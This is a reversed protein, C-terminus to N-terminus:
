SRPVDFMIRRRKFDIAVRDFKRLTAMGLLLTPKDELGLHHFAPSDAFAIGIHDFKARGIRFDQVLGDDALIKQGTVSILSTPNNHKGRARAGRLKRQLARNGINAQAGTDIVVNVSLNGIKADTFILQGSRRRATVVIEFGSRGSGEEVNEVSIENSQFDFLIRQDQLGDLGLIGEAGIDYPDLLPGIVEGYNQRGLTLEPIYVTDVIKSGAVSVVTAKEAFELNLQGALIHSIATRESGTDIVFSFPGKGDIGVPVTMRRARDQEVAIIEAQNLPTKAPLIDQSQPIPFAMAGALLALPAYLQAIM